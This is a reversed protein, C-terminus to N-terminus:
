GSAGDGLGSKRIEDQTGDTPNSKTHGRLPSAKDIPKTIARAKHPDKKLYEQQAGGAKRAETAPMLALLALTGGIVILMMTKIMM